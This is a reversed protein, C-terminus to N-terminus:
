SIATPIGLRTGEAIQDTRSRRVTVTLGEETLEFGGGELAVLESRRFAGAFGLAPM